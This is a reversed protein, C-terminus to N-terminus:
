AMYAHLKALMLCHPLADFAKSLDMLVWGVYKNKDLSQKCDEIARMLVYANYGKRYASLNPALIAGFYDTIQDFMIYEHHPKSVYPLVSVPRYKEKNM